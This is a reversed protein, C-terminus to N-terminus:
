LHLSIKNGILGSINLRKYADSFNQNNKLALFSIVENIKMM